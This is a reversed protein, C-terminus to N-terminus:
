AMIHRSFLAMLNEPLKSFTDRYLFAFRDINRYTARYGM